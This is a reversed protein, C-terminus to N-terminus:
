QTNLMWSASPHLDQSEFRRTLPNYYGILDRKSTWGKEVSVPVYRNALERQENWLAPAEQEKAISNLNLEEELSPM